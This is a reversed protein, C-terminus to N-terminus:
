RACKQARGVCTSSYRPWALSRVSLRCISAEAMVSVGRVHLSASQSFKGDTPRSNPLGSWSRNTVNSSAAYAQKLDHSFTRSQSAVGQGCSPPSLGSTAAVLGCPISLTKIRKFVCFAAPQSPRQCSGDRTTLQDCRCRRDAPPGRNKDPRRWPMSTRRVLRDSVKHTLCLMDVLLM